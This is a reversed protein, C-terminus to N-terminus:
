AAQAQWRGLGLAHCVAFCSEARNLTYFHLHEVGAEILRECQAIAYHTAILQRTSEDDEIGAFLQRLSEPVVAGCASAFRSIAAINEPVMIGPIIPLEIGRAVAADRFWLFNDTDFFFQSIAAHAGAAEKRALVNLEMTLGSAQPHIEPYVGVYVKLDFAQSLGDVLDSAYAFGEPNPVYEGGLGDRPDGRLAVIRQVGRTVYDEAIALTNAKTSDVCTLHPAVDLGLQAQLAAVADATPKQTSGGAGYTVSVFEPSLAKLKSATRMLQESALETKPPFFEFSVLPTSM